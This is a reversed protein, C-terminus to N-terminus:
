RKMPKISYIQRFVLKEEIDFILITISNFYYFKRGYKSLHNSRFILDDRLEYPKGTAPDVGTKINKPYKIYTKKGTDKKDNKVIYEFNSLDEPYSSILKIETIDDLSPSEFSSTTKYSKEYTAIVFIYFQQPIDLENELQFEVELLEGQMNEIKKNFSLNKLKFTDSRLSQVPFQTIDVAGENDHEESFVMVPFLLFILLLRKM